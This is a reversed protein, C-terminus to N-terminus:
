KSVVSDIHLKIALDGKEDRVSGSLLTVPRKNDGFYIVEVTRVKHMWKSKPM